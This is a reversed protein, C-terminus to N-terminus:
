LWITIGDSKFHSKGSFEADRTTRTTNTAPTGVVVQVLHHPRSAAANGTGRDLPVAPPIRHWRHGCKRVSPELHKRLHSHCSLFPKLFHGCFFSPDSIKLHWSDVCVADVPNFSCQSRELSQSCAAKRHCRRVFNQTLVNSVGLKSPTTSSTNMEQTGYEPQKITLPTSNIQTDRFIFWFSVMGRLFIGKNM